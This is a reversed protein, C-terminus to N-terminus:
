GSVVYVRELRAGQKTLIMDWLDPLARPQTKSADGRQLMWLEVEVGRLDTRAHQFALSSLFARGEPLDRYFNADSTNQLLDSAVILRRRKAQQGPKQLETLAVSQISELIPSTAAGTAALLGQFAQDLPRKFKGEWTRQVAAPDGTTADVDAATGPNCRVIVPRLLRDAAADVKFVGLQGYRPISARLNDLQNLFDQRQATNMPDTVDVVLITLSDPDPPCLTVPDLTRQASVLHVYFWVAAVLAGLTVIVILAWKRTEARERAQAAGRRSSGRRTAM